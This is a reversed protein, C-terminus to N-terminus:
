PRAKVTRLTITKQRPGNVSVAVQDAVPNSSAPCSLATGTLQCSRIQITCTYSEKEEETLQCDFNSASSLDIKRLRELEREALKTVGQLATADSSARLASTQMTAAMLAGVALVVIAVLVELLTLGASSKM